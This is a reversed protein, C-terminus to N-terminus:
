GIKHYNYVGKVYMNMFKGKSEANLLNNFTKEDVDDYAYLGVPYQVYLTNDEFGVAVINSSEVPIMEM